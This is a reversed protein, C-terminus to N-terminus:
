IVDAGGGSGCVLRGTGNSDNRNGDNDIGGRRQGRVGRRRGVGFIFGFDFAGGDARRCRGGSRGRGGGRGCAACPSRPFLPLGPSLLTAVSSVVGSVVPAGAAGGCAAAM